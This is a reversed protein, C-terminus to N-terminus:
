EGAKGLATFAALARDRAFSHEVIPQPYTKGLSVGAQKLASLPAEWPKHLFKDPLNALEPVFKRVYAGDSDFKEGQIIPNFIRYYPAADAGSGAVWQWSAANSAMDADVLTDWFWDEGKRWDMLLHKVLFSGVVMRLRNHMWGTQWLERMGADVIPYGTQGHQWAKLKANDQVWAFKDFKDQFNQTALAPFYFLLHYSFERWGLEAVYKTVDNEYGQLAGSELQAYTAAWIQRVSMLGFRLYSSLKSTSHVGPINRNEGYGKIGHDLFTFLRKQAGQESVDWEAMMGGSWDPATPLLNLTELDVAGAIPLNYSLITEPMALTPEVPRLARAAKWFPTFVKCPTGAKTKVEWPEYLLHGNFSQVAIGAEKLQMKLASDAEREALNYRRNWLVATASTQTVLAPLIHASDGAMIVLKAGRKELSYSLSELAKHLWWKAAGGLNKFELTQEYIYVCIVPQGTVCAAHLAPNDSVRLDDRLWVIVPKSHDTRVTNM